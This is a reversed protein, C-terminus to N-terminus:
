DDGFNQEHCLQLLMCAIEAIHEPDLLGDLEWGVLADMVKDEQGRHYRVMFQQDSRGSTYHFAFEDDEGRCVMLESNKGGSSPSPLHFDEEVFRM